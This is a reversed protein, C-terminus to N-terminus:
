KNSCANCTSSSIQVEADAEGESAYAQKQWDQYSLTGLTAVAATATSAKLFGRRTLKTM